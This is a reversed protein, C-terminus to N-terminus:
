GKSPAAHMLAEVIRMTALGEEGPCSLPEQRQLAKALNDFVAYLAGGISTTRIVTRDHAVERADSLQRNDDAFSTMTTLGEHVLQLRGREAWIDLSVERYCTFRLPQAACVLGSELVLCFPFNLDGRIPGEAFAHGGPVASAFVVPGLLMRILDVWHTGNNRLGNGYTGFVAMPKGFREVLGGEALARLDADYRRPMNVAVLIGRRRCEAVFAEAAELSAAMPKEVIVGRLRPFHELIGLRVDPPTALVVIEFESANELAAASTAAQAIGWRSRASALAADSPDVVAQWDYAAHKQLVQAHSAYQHSHAQKPDDAYGAAIRGFGILATKWRGKM